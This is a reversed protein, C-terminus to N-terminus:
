GTTLGVVDVYELLDIVLNVLLSGALFMGGVYGSFAVTRQLILRNREGPDSVGGSNIAGTLQNTVDLMLLPIPVSVAFWGLSQYFVSRRSAVVASHEVFNPTMRIVSTQSESPHVPLRHEWYGPLTLTIQAPELPMVISNPTAGNWVSGLYVTANSPESDLTLRDGIASGPEAVINTTEGETVQILYEASEFGPTALSLRHEGLAVVAVTRSGTGMYRGDLWVRGDSPAAIEIRGWGEGAIASVTLNGLESVREQVSERSGATGHIDIGGGASEFLVIEIYLFDALQEISGFVLLDLEFERARRAPNTDVAPLLRSDSGGVFTVPLREPVSVDSAMRENAENLRQQAEEIRVVVADRQSDGSGHSLYLLDYTKFLDALEERERRRSRDVIQVARRESEDEGITHSEVFELRDRLLLPLSSLLYGNERHLSAGSFEAVGVKWDSRSDELIQAHIGSSPSFLGPLCTLVAAAFSGSNM